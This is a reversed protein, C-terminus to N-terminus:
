DNHTLWDYREKSALYVQAVRMAQKISRNDLIKFELKYIWKLNFNLVSIHLKLIKQWTKIDRRFEM